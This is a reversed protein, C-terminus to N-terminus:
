CVVSHQGVKVAVAEHAIRKMQRLCIELEQQLHRGHPTNLQLLFSVFNSSMRTASRVCRVTGNNRAEDTERLLVSAEGILLGLDHQAFGQLKEVVRNSVMLLQRPDTEVDAFGVVRCCTQLRCNSLKLKLSHYVKKRFLLWKSRLCVM